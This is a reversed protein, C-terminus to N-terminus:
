DLKLVLPEFHKWDHKVGLAHAGCKGHEALGVEFDHVLM